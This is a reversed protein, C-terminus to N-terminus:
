PRLDRFLTSITGRARYSVFIERWACRKYRCASTADATLARSLCRHLRSSDKYGATTAEDSAGENSLQHRSAVLYDGGIEVVATLAVLMGPNPPVVVAPFLALIRCSM